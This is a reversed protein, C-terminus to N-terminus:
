IQGAWRLGWFFIQLRARRADGDQMGRFLSRLDMGALWMMCAARVLLLGGPLDLLAFSLCLRMRVRMM